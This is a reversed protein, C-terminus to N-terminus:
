ADLLHARKVSLIVGQSIPNTDVERRLSRPNVCLSIIKTDLKASLRRRASFTAAAPLRILHYFYQNPFVEDAEYRPVKEELLLSAVIRM